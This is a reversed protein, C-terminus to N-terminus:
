SEGSKKVSRTQRKAKCAPCDRVKGPQWSGDTCRHETM